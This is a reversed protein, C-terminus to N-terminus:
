SAVRGHAEPYQHKISGVDHMFTAAKMTNQPVMTWTTGPASAVPRVFDVSLKSEGDEIWYRAATTLDANVRATAEELAAYLAKFLVPNRNLLDAYINGDIQGRDGHPRSDDVAFKSMSRSKATIYVYKYGVLLAIEELSARTMLAEHGWNDWESVHVGAFGRSFNSHRRM